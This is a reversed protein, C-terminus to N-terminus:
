GSCTSRTFASAFSLGTATTASRPGYSMRLTGSIGAYRQAYSERSGLRMAAASTRSPSRLGDPESGATTGPNKLMPAPMRSKAHATPPSRGGDGLCGFADHVVRDAREAGGRDHADLAAARDVRIRSARQTRIRAGPGVPRARCRREEIQGREGLEGRGSQDQREHALSLELEVHRKPTWSPFSYDHTVVRAGPALEARLKKEVKGMASPLLYVTVVTADKVPTAFLDREYFKVRDAVGAKAANDNALRVLAPDIDVGFGGRAHYKTVATIVLRGDGSGLDVVYDGPGVSALTLMEDVIGSPTPVYPAAREPADAAHAVALVVFCATVGLAAARRLACSVRHVFM